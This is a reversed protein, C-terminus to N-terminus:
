TFRSPEFRCYTIENAETNAKCIPEVQATYTVRTVETAQALSVAALAASAAIAFVALTRKRTQM